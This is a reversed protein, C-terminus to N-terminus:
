TYLLIKNEMVKISLLKWFILDKWLSLPNTFLGIVYNDKMTSTVFEQVIYEINWYTGLLSSTRISTILGYM